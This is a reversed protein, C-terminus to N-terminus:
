KCLMRPSTQKHLFNYKDDTRASLVRKVFCQALNRCLCEFALRLNLDNVNQVDRQEVLVLFEWSRFTDLFDPVRNHGGVAHPEKSRLVVVANGAGNLVDQVPQATREGGIILLLGLGGNSALNNSCATNTAFVLSRSREGHYLLLEQSQTSLRNLREIAERKRNGSPSLSSPLWFGLNM